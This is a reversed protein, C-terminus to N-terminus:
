AGPLGAQDLTLRVLGDGTLRLVDGRIATVDDLEWDSLVERHLGPALEGRGPQHTHGHVLLAADAAKLWAVAETGDIDVWEGQRQKAKIAESGDRLGQAIHRREALPRKLFAQQWATDRVQARFRQYAIDALCLADGHTLLLRHGWASLLTPDQLLELGCDAALEAGVLFDRNGSLFAIHRTASAARLVDACAREFGEARADDGVWAEFLDGLIFVADAPTQLLHRQWAEFTRPLEQRLHLDSIFDIARWGAPATFRGIAPAACM